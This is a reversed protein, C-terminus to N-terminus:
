VFTDRFITSCCISVVGFTERYATHPVRLHLLPRARLDVLWSYLRHWRWSKTMSLTSRVCFTWYSRLRHTLTLNHWDSVRTQHNTVLTRVTKSRHASIATFLHVKIQPHVATPQQQTAEVGEAEHLFVNWDPSVFVEQDFRFEHHTDRLRQRNTLPNRTLKSTM